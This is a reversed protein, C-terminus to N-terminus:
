DDEDVECSGCDIGFKDCSACSLKNVPEVDNAEIGAKEELVAVALHIAENYIRSGYTTKLIEAALKYTM